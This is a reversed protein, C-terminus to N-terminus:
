CYECKIKKNFQKKYWNNLQRRKKFILIKSQDITSLSSLVKKRKNRRWNIVFLLFSFTMQEECGPIDQKMKNPNKLFRKIVGRVQAFTSYDLYIVLDAKAVREKLTSIYTGDIIWKEGKSKELIIKDREEIDREVWHDFYNITDIHIVPLNLENKLNESLITKGTGSGGIVCIKNIKEFM